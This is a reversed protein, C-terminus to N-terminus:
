FAICYWMHICICNLVIGLYTSICIFYIHILIFVCTVWVRERERFNYTYMIKANRTCNYVNFNICMKFFDLNQINQKDRKEGGARLHKFAPEIQM